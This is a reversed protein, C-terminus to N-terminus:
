KDSIKEIITKPDYLNKNFPMMCVTSEDVHAIVQPDDEFFIEIGYQRCMASKWEDVGHELCADLSSTILKSYPIDWQELDAQTTDRDERFTIIIVEHNSEILAHALLSFFEPCRTITDDIDLGVIM